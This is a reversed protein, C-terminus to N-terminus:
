LKQKLLEEALVLNEEDPSHIMADIVEYERAYRVPDKHKLAWLKRWAEIRRSNGVIGLDPKDM